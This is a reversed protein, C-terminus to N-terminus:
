TSLNMRNVTCKEWQRSAYHICPSGRLGPLLLPRSTSDNMAEDSNERTVKQRAAMGQRQPCAHSEESGAVKGKGVPSPCHGTSKITGM